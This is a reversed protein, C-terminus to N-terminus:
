KATISKARNTREPWPTAEQINKIAKNRETAVQMYLKIQSSDVDVNGETDKMFTKRQRLIKLVNRYYRFDTVHEMLPTPAHEECHKAIDRASFARKNDTWPRAFENYIKQSQKALIKRDTDLVNEEYHLIFNRADPNAEKQEESQGMECAPCHCKGDKDKKHEIEVENEEVEEEEEEESWGVEEPDYPTYPPPVLPESSSSSSSSSSSALDVSSIALGSDPFQFPPASPIDHAISPPPPTKKQRKKPRASDDTM